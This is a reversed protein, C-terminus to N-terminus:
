HSPPAAHKIGDIRGHVIEVSKETRGIEKFVEGFRQENLSIHMDLSKDLQILKRMQVVMIVMVVILALDGLAELLRLVESDIILREM